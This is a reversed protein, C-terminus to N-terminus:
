WDRQPRARTGGAPALLAMAANRGPICSVGGGRRAGAGCLMIRPHATEVGWRGVDEDAEAFPWSLDGHFIHGGPMWLEREIDLPSHAEVCPRGDRDRALCEAIPEDLVSDLSRMVAALAAERAGDPDRAFLRAPMHLAFATLAHAGTSHLRSALISPDTLSHCYCECPALEPLRGGAAQEYARQLQSATENVHFTGAFAREPAIGARQRPLRALLMNVKLQSGEPVGARPTGLLRALEAPAANVLVHAARVAAEAVGDTFRVAVGAADPELAIVETRTRMAAGARAAAHELAASLAGMGGLPVRWEGDGGGIVHYLLCRNQRLQPDGASAFTGILGDTLALGTVLEDDFTAELLEQLPREFIAEWTKDDDLLRRMQERSRLPETLTRFLRAALRETIARWRLWARYETSSGTLSRFSDHTAREDSADILLGRRAGTRTDPTYSGVSRRLLRIPLGLEAIISAPLLSLLYAYRSLRADVGPFPRASVAAGGLEARRELVLCTRGAGALYAAAALGNHGGGVIVVDYRRSEAAAM